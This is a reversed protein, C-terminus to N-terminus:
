FILWIIKPKNKILIIFFIPLFNFYFIFFVIKDSKRKSKANIKYKKVFKVANKSKKFLFAYM